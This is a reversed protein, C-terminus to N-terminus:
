GRLIRQTWSFSSLVAKKRDGFALGAGPLGMIPPKPLVVGRRAAIPDVETGRLFAPFWELPGVNRRPVM